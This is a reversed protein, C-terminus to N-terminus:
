SLSGGAAEFAKAAANTPMRMRVADADTLMLMPKRLPMM